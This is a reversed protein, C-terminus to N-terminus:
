RPVRGARLRVGDGPVQFMVHESRLSLDRVLRTEFVEAATRFVGLALSCILEPGAAPRFM